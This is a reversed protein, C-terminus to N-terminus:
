TKYWVDVINNHLFKTFEDLNKHCLNVDLMYNSCSLAHLAECTEDPKLGCTLRNEDFDYHRHNCLYCNRVDCGNSIALALGWNYFRGYSFSDSRGQRESYVGPSMNGDKITVELLSCRRRNRFTKCDCVSRAFAKGTRYYIFKSLLYRAPIAEEVMDKPSFGYFRVNDSEQIDHTVINEVDEESHVEFEIIRKHSEKKKQTCEHTVKIEILIDNKSNDPNSWLLDARFRDDDVHVTEELRCLNLFKKLDVTKEVLKSCEDVSEKWICNTAYKCAMSQQFHLIISKSDEFWQKLRLKAFAHLYSEYSCEKNVENEYRYDHAFHWARINGCRKLMRCGCHPCFCDEKSDHAENIHVLVGSKSVAYHQEMRNEYEM